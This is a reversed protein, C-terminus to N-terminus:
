PPSGSAFISQTRDAEMSKPLITTEMSTPTPEVEMSELFGEIEMSTLKISRVKVM